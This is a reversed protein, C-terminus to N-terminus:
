THTHKNIQTNTQTNINQLYYWRTPSHQPILSTSSCPVTQWQISGPLTVRNWTDNNHNYHSEHDHGTSKSLLIATFHLFYPRVTSVRLIFVCVYVYRFIVYIYLTCVYLYQIHNFYVRNLIQTLNIRIKPRVGENYQCHIYEYTCKM